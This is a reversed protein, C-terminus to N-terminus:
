RVAPLLLDDNRCRTVTSPSAHQSATLLSQGAATPHPGHLVASDGERVEPISRRLVAAISVRVLPQRNIQKVCVTRRM